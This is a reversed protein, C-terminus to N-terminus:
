VGKAKPIVPLKSKAELLAMPFRKQWLDLLIDEVQELSRLHNLWDAQNHAFRDPLNSEFTSIKGHATDSLLGYLEKACKFDCLDEGKYGNSISKLFTKYHEKSLHDIMEKFNLDLGHCKWGWFMHPLDWLYIVAIGLELVRRLIIQAPKDLGCAALYISITVDSFVEDFITVLEKQHLNPPSSETLVQGLVALLRAKREVGALHEVEEKLCQMLNSRFKSNLKEMITKDTNM